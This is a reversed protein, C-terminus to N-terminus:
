SNNQNMVTILDTYSSKIQHYLELGKKQGLQRIFTNYFQQKNRAKNLATSILRVQDGNLEIKNRRQIIQVIQEDPLPAPSGADSEKAPQASKRSKQSKDAAEAAATVAPAADEKKKKSGRRSKKQTQSPLSAEITPVRSIKTAGREAATKICCDYGSDKSVIYYTKQPDYDLFLLTILQFDLANPTGVHVPLFHIGAKSSMLSTLIEIKVNDAKKSYLIYVEDGETLNEAGKLGAGSVNEYDIYYISM